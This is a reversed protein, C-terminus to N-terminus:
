ALVGVTSYFGWISQFVESDEQEQRKEEALRNEAQNKLAKQLGELILVISENM